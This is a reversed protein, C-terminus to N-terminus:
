SLKNLMQVLQERKRVSVPVTSNDKMFINGTNKKDFREIYNINVLHSRHVRVFGNESLLNDYEKLTKSMTIKKGNNLYFTTYHNESKCRIIDEINIVYINDSTNLVLKKPKHSLNEINSLFATIKQQNAENDIEEVAKNVAEILEDANVPKLIYDIASFKIAKIAHEQFATIFILKFNHSNIKKLLDFGTGDPMDIDLFVIDPNYDNILCIGSEVNKATNIVINDFNDNIIKSIIDRSNQEDDVVAASIKKFTKM